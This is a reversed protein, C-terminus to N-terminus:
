ETDNEGYETGIRYSVFWFFELYPYKERQTAGVHFGKDLLVKWHQGHNRRFGNLYQSPKPETFKISFQGKLYKRSM